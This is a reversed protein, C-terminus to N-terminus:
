KCLSDSLAQLLHIHETSPVQRVTHGRFNRWPFCPHWILVQPNPPLERSAWPNHNTTKVAATQTWERSPCSLNQLLCTPVLVFVAAVCVQSQQKILACLPWHAEGPAWQNLIQRGICSIRTQHRPWSSGKSFSMAVWELIRAQSIGHISSGPLSCDM